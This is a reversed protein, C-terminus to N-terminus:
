KKAIQSSVFSLQEKDMKKVLINARGIMERHVFMGNIKGVRRNRIIANNRFAKSEYMEAVTM